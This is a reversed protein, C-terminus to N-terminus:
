STAAAALFGIVTTSRVAVGSSTVREHGIDLYAGDRMEALRGDGDDAQTIEQISPPGERASGDLRDVGRGVLIRIEIASKLMRGPGETKARGSQAIFFADRQGRPTFGPRM